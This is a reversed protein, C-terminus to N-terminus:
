YDLRAISETIPFYVKQFPGDDLGPYNVEIPRIINGNPLTVSKRYGDLSKIAEDITNYLADVSLTSHYILVSKGLQRVGKSEDYEHITMGNFTTNTSIYYKM